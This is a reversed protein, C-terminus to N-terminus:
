HSRLCFSALHPATSTAWWKFLMVANCRNRIERVGGPLELGRYLMLSIRPQLRAFRRFGQLGPLLSPLTAHRFLPHAPPRRYGSAFFVWRSSFLAHISYISMPNPLIVRFYFSWLVSHPLFAVFTLSVRIISWNGGHTNSLQSMSRIQTVGEEFFSTLFIYRSCVIRFVSCSMYILVRSAGPVSLSFFGEGVEGVESGQETPHSGLCLNRRTYPPEM